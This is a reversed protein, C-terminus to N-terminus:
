ASPTEAVEERKVEEKKEHHMLKKQFILLTIVGVSIYADALNFIMNFFEFEKGGVLPMWGPFHAGQVIPCYVMDVVKGQMFGAYGGGPPFATAVAYPTSESFIIGYFMSDILNGLAGTFILAICLIFGRNYKERIAKVLYFTGFIIAAFRFLTLALKGWKGEGLEMGWAMGVNEVFHMRVWSGLLFHEEGLYYRTKIYVKLVQDAVLLLAIFLFLYRGKM